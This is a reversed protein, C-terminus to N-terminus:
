MKLNLTKELDMQKIEEYASESGANALDILYELYPDNTSGIIKRRQKNNIKKNSYLKIVTYLKRIQLYEKALEKEINQITHNCPNHKYEILKEYVYKNIYKNNYAFEILETNVKRLLYSVLSGFVSNYPNIKNIERSSRALPIIREDCKYLVEIYRIKKNAHYLLYFNEPEYEIYGKQYLYYALETKNNFLSTFIDAEQLTLKKGNKSPIIKGNRNKDVAVLEYRGVM